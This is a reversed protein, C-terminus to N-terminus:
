AHQRIILGPALIVAAIAAVRLLRTGHLTLPELAVLVVGTAAVGINTEIVAPRDLSSRWCIIGPAGVGTLDNIRCRKGEYPEGM